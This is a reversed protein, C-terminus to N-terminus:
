LSWPNFFEHYFICNIKWCSIHPSRPQV